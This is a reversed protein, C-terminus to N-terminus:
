GEAILREVLKKSNKIKYERGQTDLVTIDELQYTEGDDDNRITYQRDIYLVVRQKEKLSFGDKTYDHCIYGKDYNYQIGEIAAIRRGVNIVTVKIKHIKNYLPERITQATILLKERDRLVTRASFFLAICAIIFSLASFSIAAFDKYKNVFEIM